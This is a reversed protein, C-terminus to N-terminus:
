AEPAQLFTNLNSVPYCNILRRRRTPRCEEKQVGQDKAQALKRTHLSDMPLEIIKDLLQSLLMANALEISYIGENGTRDTENGKDESHRSCKGERYM